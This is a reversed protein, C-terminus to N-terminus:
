ANQEPLLPTERVADADPPVVGYADYAHLGASPREAVLVAVTVAVGVALVM